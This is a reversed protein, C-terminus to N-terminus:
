RRKGQLHDSDSRFAPIGSAIQTRITVRSNAVAHASLSAVSELLAAVDVNEFRPKRPRAFDLFSVLLRDLRQSEKDIIGICELQKEPAAQGRRLIGAAGGIASLPNRIEHALGASLQGLAYLREARRMQDFNEQLERYVEELQGSTRELAEKQRRERSAFVGAVVGAVVFDGFEALESSPFVRPSGTGVTAFVHPMYCAASGIAALLVGTWGFCIGAIVIPVVYLHQLVNHWITWSYPILYQMITVSAIGAVVAIL